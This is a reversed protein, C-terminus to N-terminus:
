RDGIVLFVGFSVESSLYSQTSPPCLSPYSVSAAAEAEAKKEVADRPPWEVDKPRLHETGPPYLNPSGSTPGYTGGAPNPLLSM